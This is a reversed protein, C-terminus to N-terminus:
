TTCNKSFYHELILVSIMFVKNGFPQMAIAMDAM